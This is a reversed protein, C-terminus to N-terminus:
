CCRLSPQPQSGLWTAKEWTMGVHRLDGGDLLVLDPEIQEIAVRVDSAEQM